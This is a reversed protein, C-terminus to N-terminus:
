VPQEALTALENFHARARGLAKAQKVAEAETYAYVAEREVCRVEAAAQDLRNRHVYRWAARKSDGLLARRQPGHELDRSFDKSHIWGSVTGNDFHFEVSGVVNPPLGFRVVESEKILLIDQVTRDGEARSCRIRVWHDGAVIGLEKQTAEVITQGGDQVTGGGVLPRYLKPADPLFFTKAGPTWLAFEPDEIGELTEITLKPAAVAAAAGAIISGIFGRRSLFPAM